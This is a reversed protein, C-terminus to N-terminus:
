EYGYMWPRNAVGSDIDSWYKKDEYLKNEVRLTVSTSSAPSQYSHRAGSQALKTIYDYDQLQGDDNNAIIYFVEQLM